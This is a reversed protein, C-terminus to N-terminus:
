SCYLEEYARVMRIVDFHQEVRRRGAEGLRRALVPDRRLRLIAAALAEPDGAPVLLGTVGDEVAEPTGGVRTAVVPLGVAMAELLTLSIGENLSPLIFLGARGLLGPIDRVVGLFRVAAEVHLGEALRRVDPLCPGDGAVEVQFAADTRAVLAVARVLNAVDKEPNVRAVTVAPGGTHSGTLHFRALDIGNWILGVKGAGIGAARARLAGDRSVCVFRDTLRSLLNVVRAQRGTLRVGMSHRTHIVRAVGALWAAPTGYIHPREDHTHLVAIRKSRFLAALRIVLGLRLGDPEYLATVPVGCAEIDDALLGRQGLVIVELRFRQRDFHRAFEVLLKEQGGMELGLTLHAVRLPHGRHERM